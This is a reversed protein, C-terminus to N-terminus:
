SADEEDSPLDQDVKWGMDAYDRAHELCVTRDRDVVYAGHVDYEAPAGCDFCRPLRM